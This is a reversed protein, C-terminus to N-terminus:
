APGDPVGPYPRRLATLRLTPLELRGPPADSVQLDEDGTITEAGEDASQPLSPTPIMTQPRRPVLAAAREAADRGVGTLLHSYTDATITLTSHGLRKSVVALPVDAALMLSAAGHRLDHLRVTRVGAAKALRGFLRTVYEPHLVRGDAHRFVLEGYTPDDQWADGWTARESDQSLRHALLTGATREDLDVTRHEGAKTKPPGVSLAYGVPVVQQRVVIVRADLDVDSWRLGVAEGRRLGTFALLEYLAGLRHGAAHDLFTGLEAPSWPAVRPRSAAPLEVFSAPNYDILRAQVAATLASRLTARIRILTTPGVPREAKATARVIDRLAATIHAPRLESLRRGGIRPILYDLHGRYIRATTPRLAAKGDLWETLWASVTMQAGGITDVGRGELSIVRELAESAAGKTRFGGRKVQRRKGDALPPLEVYFGWTGAATKKVSGRASM